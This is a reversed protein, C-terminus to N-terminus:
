HINIEKNNHYEKLKDSIRKRNDINSMYEKQRISIKECDEPHDIYHQRVGESNHQRWIPNNYMTEYRTKMIKERLEPSWKNRKKHLKGNDDLYYNGTDLKDQIKQQKQKDKEIQRYIAKQKRYQEIYPVAINEIEQRINHIYEKSKDISFVEKNYELWKYYENAKNFLEVNIDFLEGFLERGKSKLEDTELWGQWKHLKGHEKPSCYILNDISNNCHNYDIHHIQYGKIYQHGTYKMFYVHRYIDGSCNYISISPYIDTYKVYLGKGLSLHYCSIEKEGVYAKLRVNANNSIEIDIRIQSPTKSTKIVEWIEEM